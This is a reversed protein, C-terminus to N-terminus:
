NCYLQYLLVILNLYCVYMSHMNKCDVCEGVFVSLLIFNM